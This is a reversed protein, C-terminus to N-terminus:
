HCSIFVRKKDRYILATSRQLLVVGEQQGSGKPQPPHLVPPASPEALADTPEKQLLGSPEWSVM